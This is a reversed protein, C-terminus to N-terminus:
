KKKKTNKDKKKTDEGVKRFTLFFPLLVIVLAMLILTAIFMLWLDLRTMRNLLFLNMGVSLLLWLPLLVLIGPFFSAKFHKKCHYCEESKEKKGIRLSKRLISFVEKYRYVTGCFPCVPLKFM